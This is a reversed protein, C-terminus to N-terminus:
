ISHFSRPRAGLRRGSQSAAYVRALRAARRAASSSRTHAAGVATAGASRSGAHAERELGPLRHQAGLADPEREPERQGGRQHPRQAVVEGVVREDVELVRAMEGRAAPRHEVGALVDVTAGTRQPDREEGVRDREARVPQDRGAQEAEQRRQRRDRQEQLQQAAGEARRLQAPERGHRPRHVRPHHLPRGRPHLRRERDRERQRTEDGEGFPPLPSRARHAGPRQPREGREGPGLRHEQEHQPPDGQQHVGVVSHSQAAHHVADRRGQQDVPGPEHERPEEEAREPRARERRAAEIVGSEVRPLQQFLQPEDGLGVPHHQHQERRREREPPAAPDPAARRVGGLARQRPQPEGRQRQEVRRPANRRLRPM